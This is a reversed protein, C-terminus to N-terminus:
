DEHSLGRKQHPCGGLGSGARLVPSVALLSLTGWDRVKGDGPGPVLGAQLLELGLSAGGRLQM